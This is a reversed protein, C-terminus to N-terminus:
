ITRLSSIGREQREVVHKSPSVVSRYAEGGQTSTNERGERKGVYLCECHTEVSLLSTKERPKWEGGGVGCCM